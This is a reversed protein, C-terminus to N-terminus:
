KMQYKPMCLMIHTLGNFARRALERRGTLGNAFGLLVDMEAGELPQQILRARLYEIMGEYDSEHAIYGKDMLEQTKKRTMLVRRSLRNAYNFRNILSTSNIWAPGHIWGNVSPPEFLTMGMQELYSRIAGAYDVEDLGLGRIASVSFEVPHKIMAVRNEEEYFFKSQFLVRLTERVDGGYGNPKHAHFVEALEEVAPHQIPIDERVFWTIFKWAMYVSTAPLRDHAPSIGSRSIHNMVLEIVQETDQGRGRHNFTVGFVTKDERSHMSPHFFYTYPYDHRCTTKVTEGTLAKAVERVDEESYNGIGMSFLEMLERAYNEQPRGKENLKNDLYILMAPDRTVALLLDQFRGHGQRRLLENQDKLLRATIRDRRDSDPPLTGSTCRQEEPDSGDNGDNVADSVGDRVKNWESVFHDHMFLTLVEQFPQRSHVMRYLWWGQLSNHNEPNKLRRNEEFDRLNAIEDDLSRDEPDYDIISSVSDVLGKGALEVHEEPSGGFCLRRCLHAAESETWPGSYAEMYAM